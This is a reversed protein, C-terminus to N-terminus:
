LGDNEEQDLSLLDELVREARAYEKGRVAALADELGAEMRRFRAAMGLVSEMEELHAALDELLEAREAPPLDALAARCAQLYPEVRPDPLVSM